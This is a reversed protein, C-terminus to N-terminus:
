KREVFLKYLKDKFPIKINLAWVVLKWTYSSTVAEIYDDNISGISKKGYELFNEMGNWILEKDYEVSYRSLRNKLVSEILEQYDEGMQSVTKMILAKCLKKEEELKGEDNCMEKLYDLIDAAANELGVLKGVQYSKIRESLAGIDTVVAPIGACLVESLTYSFTEPWVSLICVADIDYLKFLTRIDNQNYKGIKVLNDNEYLLLDADGINGFIYWEVPLKSRSVIERIIKSGKLESIGGIFAVNMKEKESHSHVSYEEKGFQLLTGDSQLFYFSIKGKGMKIKRCPIWVKFCYNESLYAPVVSGEASDDLAILMRGMKDLVFNDKVDLAGRLILHGQKEYAKYEKITVSKQVKVIYDKINLSETIDLGHQIVQIKENLDPYYRGVIDKTSQSPAVIADCLDLVGHFKKRWLQIYSDQNYIQACDKLCEKCAADDSEYCIRGAHNRLNINPCITFFDHATFVIPINLKEAEYFIDLSTTLVHHIHVLDINFAVLLKGFLEAIRRDHFRFFRNREGVFFRYVYESEGVYATVQLYHGDMAAVFINNKYKLEDKLHKVHMQTGGINNEAGERFDSHLLYFINRKGNHTDWYRRVNEGILKNPNMQCHKENAKMQAPYREYLIKQHEEIYKAKEASVFSKTGSHYIYTDDCMVNIYGMQEARNCFDNEEGYGRGFTEADFKGILDIVERKVLMCFGHAVSIRPYKKLSCEEVMAAAEDVSLGEPLVNEEFLNPVSCLTANNSLPTVTGIEQSRYACALMKEVWNKTLITDSNLLIVDNESSQSMGININNSFGKNEKNHIVIVNERNQEELFPRIRNDSSNDNILVLRNQQLDTNRYLSELCIKLDDYANYIPIIIDVKKM